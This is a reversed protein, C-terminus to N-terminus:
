FPLPDDEDQNIDVREVTNSGNAEVIRWGVISNFYNTIGQKNTFPRGRLNFSVDVNQGVKFKDLLDVKDQTFEVKIYEPYEPNEAVVVILDRKKFTDTVNQVVGVEHIKGVINM